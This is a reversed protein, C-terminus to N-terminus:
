EGGCPRRCGAQRSVITGVIGTRYAQEVPEQPADICRPLSAPSIADARTPSAPTAPCAARRRTRCIPRWRRTPSTRRTRPRPTRRVSLKRAAHESRRHPRPLLPRREAARGSRSRDAVPQRRAHLAGLSHGQDGASGLLGPEDGHDVSSRSPPADGADADPDLKPPNSMSIPETEPSGLLPLRRDPQSPDFYSYPAGADRADPERAEGEGAPPVNDVHEFTSWLWQPRYRTKVMIHFGSSRSTARRASSGAPRSAKPSM